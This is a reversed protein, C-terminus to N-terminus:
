GEKYSLAGSPCMGIVRKVESVSAGNPNVWPQLRVDFVAPLNKVCEGAHICINQDYSITIKDGKYENM